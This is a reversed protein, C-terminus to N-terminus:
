HSRETSSMPKTRPTASAPAVLAVAPVCAQVTAGGNENCATQDISGAVISRLVEIAALAARQCEVLADISHLLTTADLLTM